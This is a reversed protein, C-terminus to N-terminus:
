TPGATEETEREDKSRGIQIIQRLAECPSTRLTQRERERSCVCVFVCLRETKRVCLVCVCVCQYIVSMDTRGQKGTRIIDQKTLQKM